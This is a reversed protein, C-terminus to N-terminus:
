LGNRGLSATALADGDKQDAEYQEARDQRDPVSVILELDTFM